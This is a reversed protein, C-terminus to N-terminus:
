FLEAQPIGKRSRRTELAHLHFMVRFWGKGDSAHDPYLLRLGDRMAIANDFGDMRADDDSLADLNVPAVMEIALWGLGPSYATTGPKVPPRDWRRITSRKTGARIADQWRKKFFLQGM